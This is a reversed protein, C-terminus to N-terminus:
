IDIGVLHVTRYTHKVAPLLKGIVDEVKLRISSTNVCPHCGVYETALVDEDILLQVANDKDNILGMVSVAGPCIDLCELMKEPSAFSLRASGIQASLEKTKFPKDGPMMLLYFATGQRNCLFLNKCIPAGLVEDILCCIEMNEAPEHDVREYSIGLSDLFDYTRIEREERGECSKPRGSQLIM